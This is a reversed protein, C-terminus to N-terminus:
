KENELRLLLKKIDWQFNIDNLDIDKRNVIVPIDSIAWSPVPEELGTGHDSTIVVKEEPCIDNLMDVMFRFRKLNFEYVKKKFEKDTRWERYQKVVPNEGQQYPGHKIYGYEVYTCHFWYLDYDLVSIDRWFGLEDSPRIECPLNNMHQFFRENNCMPNIGWTNTMFYGKPFHHWILDMDNGDKTKFEYPINYNYKPNIHHMLNSHFNNPKIGSWMTVLGIVTPQGIGPHQTFRQVNNKIKKMTQCPFIDQLFEVSKDWRLGDVSIVIM